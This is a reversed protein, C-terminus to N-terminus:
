VKRPPGPRLARLEQMRRLVRGTADAMTASFAPPDRFSAVEEDTFVHMGRGNAVWRDYFCTMKSVWYEALLRATAEEYVGLTLSCSFKFSYVGVFVKADPTRAEARFCDFDVGLHTKTWVGGMVRWAFPGDGDAGLKGMEEKKSSLAVEDLM